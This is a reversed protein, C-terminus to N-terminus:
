AQPSPCRWSGYSIDVNVWVDLENWTSQSHFKMPIGSDTGILMVVGAERLQNFKTKLTPKRIPTLQFYPLEGPKKISNKIITVPHECILQDCSKFIEGEGRGFIILRLWVPVFNLSGFRYSFKLWFPSFAGLIVFVNRTAGGGLDWGLFFYWM